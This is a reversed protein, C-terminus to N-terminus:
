ERRLPYYIYPSLLLFLASFLLWITARRARSDWHNDFDGATYLLVEGKRSEGMWYISIRQAVTLQEATGKGHRHIVKGNERIELLLPVSLNYGLKQLEQPIPESTFAEFMDGSNGITLANTVMEACTSHWKDMDIVSWLSRTGNDDKESSGNILLWRGLDVSIKKQAIGETIGAKVEAPLHEGGVMGTVKRSSDAVVYLASAIGNYPKPMLANLSDLTSLTPGTAPFRSLSLLGRQVKPPSVPDLYRLVRLTWDWLENRTFHMGSNSQLEVADFRLKSVNLYNIVGYMSVFQVLVFIATLVTKKTKM